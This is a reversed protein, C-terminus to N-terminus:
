LRENPGANEMFGTADGFGTATSNIGLGVPSLDPKYNLNQLGTNYDVGLALLSYNGSTDTFTITDAVQVPGTLNFTIIAASVSNMLALVASVSFLRLNLRTM